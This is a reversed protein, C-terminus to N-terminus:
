CFRVNESFITENKHIIHFHRVNGMPLIQLNEFFESFTSPFVCMELFILVDNKRIRRFHCVNGLPLIQLNEYVQPHPSFPPNM